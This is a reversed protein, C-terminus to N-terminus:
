DIYVGRGLEGRHGLLLLLPSILRLKWETGVYLILHTLM